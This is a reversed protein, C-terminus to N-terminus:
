VNLHKGTLFQRFSLIKDGYYDLQNYAQMCVKWETLFMYNSLGMASGDNVPRCYHLKFNGRVYFLM